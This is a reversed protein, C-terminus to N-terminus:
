YIAVGGDIHQIAAHVIRLGRGYSFVGSSDDRLGRLNVVESNDFYLNEALINDIATFLSRRIVRRASNPRELFSARM